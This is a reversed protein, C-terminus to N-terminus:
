RVLRPSQPDRTRIEASRGVVCQFRVLFTSFRPFIFVVVWLQPDGPPGFIPPQADIESLRSNAASIGGSNLFPTDPAVDPVRTIQRQRAGSGRQWVDLTRVGFPVDLRYNSVDRTGDILRVDLGKYSNRAVDVAGAPKGDACGWHLPTRTFVLNQLYGTCPTGLVTIASSVTMAAHVTRQAASRGTTASNRFLHWLGVRHWPHRADRRREPRTWGSLTKRIARSGHQAWCWCCRPWPSLSVLSCRAPMCDDRLTKRAAVHCRFSLFTHHAPLGVVMRCILNSSSFASCPKTQGIVGLTDATACIRNSARQAAPRTGGHRILEARGNIIM